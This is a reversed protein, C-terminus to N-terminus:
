FNQAVSCSTCVKYVSKVQFFSQCSHNNLDSYPCFIQSGQHSLHYLTQRCHPLGPNSGQTPFIGQLFFHCDVGTSKGLFDWPRLLRSCAVAWPTAFLRVRSLSKVKVKKWKWFIQVIIFRDSWHFYCNQCSHIFSSYLDRSLNKQLDLNGNRKPIDSFVLDCLLHM